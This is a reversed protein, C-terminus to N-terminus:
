SEVQLLLLLLQVRLDFLLLDLAVLYLALKVLDLPVCTPVARIQPLQSRSMLVPLLLVLFLPLRVRQLVLQPLRDVVRVAGSVFQDIGVGVDFADLSGLSVNGVM